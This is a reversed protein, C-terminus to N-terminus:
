GVSPGNGFIYNLGTITTPTVTLSPGAATEEEVTGNFTFDNISFTGSSNTTDWGYFRFTIPTTINQYNAASLDITAGTAIPAGINADYGDLSSRFAFSTPGTGSRQGTYVFSVFDIEYGVDPTLTFEFYADLDIAPTNWS